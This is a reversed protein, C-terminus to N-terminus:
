GFPQSLNFMRQRSWEVSIIRDARNLILNPANRCSVRHIKITGTRSLFGFVSDGPIPNCCTAYDTKIDSHLEGDILLAPKGTSQASDLFTEYQLRLSDEEQRADM